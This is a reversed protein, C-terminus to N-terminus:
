CCGRSTPSAFSWTSCARSRTTSTSCAASCCPVVPAEGQCAALVDDVRAFRALRELTRITPYIIFFQGAAHRQLAQQPSVWQPEFQEAEDAVPTQGAPMRAVLFPVDFRKPLDLDTIWRALTFVGDAALTLGRAQCQAALPARRDLAAIDAAGAWRGDAHRALLVGLEEFSERIAAIAETLQADGQASRRAALAHAQADQAVIAGGPFVFAGPAFSAQQSRRTMLVQLGAGADDRLLLVTAAPRAPM